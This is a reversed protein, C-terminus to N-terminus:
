APADAVEFAPRVLTVPVPCNRLVGATVSGHLVDPRAGEGHTSMVVLDISQTSAAQVIVAAVDDQLEILAHVTREPIASRAQHIREQLVTRTALAEDSSASPTGVAVLVIDAGTLAALDTAVPM